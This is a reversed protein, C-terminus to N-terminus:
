AWVFQEGQCCQRKGEKRWKRNGEMSIAGVKDTQAIWLRWETYSQNIGLWMVNTKINSTGRKLNRKSQYLKGSRQSNSIWTQEVELSGFKFLFFLSSCLIILIKFKNLYIHQNIYRNLFCIEKVRAEERVEWDKETHDSISKFLKIWDSKVNNFVGICHVLVFWQTCSKRPHPLCACLCSLLIACVIGRSTLTLIVRAYHLQFFKSFPCWIVSSIYKDAFGHCLVNFAHLFENQCKIRDSIKERNSSKFSQLSM